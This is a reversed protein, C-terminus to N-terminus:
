VPERTTGRVNWCTGVKADKKTTTGQAQVAERGCIRM